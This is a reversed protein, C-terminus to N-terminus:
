ASFMNVIRSQVLPRPHTLCCVVSCESVCYVLCCLASVRLCVCVCYAGLVKTSMKVGGDLECCRYEPLAVTL